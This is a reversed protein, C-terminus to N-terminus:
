QLILCHFLTWNKVIHREWYLKVSTLQQPFYPIKGLQTLSERKISNDISGFLICSSSKWKSHRLTDNQWEAQLVSGKTAWFIKEAQCPKCVYSIVCLPQDTNTGNAVFGYSIYEPYYKCCKTKKVRKDRDASDESIQDDKEKWFNIWINLLVNFRIM